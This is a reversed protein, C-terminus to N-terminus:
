RGDQTCRDRTDTADARGRLPDLRPRPDGDREVALGPVGVVDVVADRVGRAQRGPGRPEVDDGRAELPLGVRDAPARGDELDVVDDVGREVLAEGDVAGLRHVGDGRLVQQGDPVVHLEDDV